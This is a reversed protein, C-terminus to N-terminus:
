HEETPCKMKISLINAIESAKSFRLIFILLKELATIRSSELAVMGRSYIYIMVCDGLNDRFHSQSPAKDRRRVLGRPFDKPGSPTIEIWD